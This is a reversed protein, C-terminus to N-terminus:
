RTLRRVIRPPAEVLLAGAATVPGYLVGYCLGEVWGLAANEVISETFKHTAM